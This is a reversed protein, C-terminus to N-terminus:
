GVFDVFCLTRLLYLVLLLDSRHKDTHGNNENYQGHGVANEKNQFVVPIVCFGDVCVSLVKQYVINNKEQGIQVMSYVEVKIKETSSFKSHHKYVHNTAASLLRQVSRVSTGHGM